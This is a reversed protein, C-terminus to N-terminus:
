KEMNKIKAKGNYKKLIEEETLPESSIIIDKVIGDKIDSLEIPLEGDIYIKGGCLNISHWAGGIKYWDGNRYSKVTERNM